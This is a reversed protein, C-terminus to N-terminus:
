LMESSTAAVTLSMIMSIEAEYAVIINNNDNQIVIIVVILNILTLLNRL